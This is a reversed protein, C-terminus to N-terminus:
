DSKPDGSELKRRLEDLARPGDSRIRREVMLRRLAAFAGGFFDVRTRNEYLLYAPVGADDTAIATFSLSATLYHTAFVQKAAALAALRSTPRQVVTLHTVAIVPRAGLEQKSWYLFEHRVPHAADPYRRLYEAFGPVRTTMSGRTGAIAFFESALSVPANEDDYTMEALGRNLYARARALVVQRFARQAEPKWAGGAAAIQTRIDLMEAASLKLDCDAVECDRLSDLDRDDLELAALDEIHPPDSFRGVLPVYRSRYLREVQSMWGILRDGSANTRVLGTLAIDRGNAPLVRVLAEGADLTRREKAGLTIFPDFSARPDSSSIGDPAAQLFLVVAGILLSPRWPPSRFSTHWSM